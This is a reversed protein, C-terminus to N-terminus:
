FVSYMFLVWYKEKEFLGILKLGVMQEAVQRRIGGVALTLDESSEASSWDELWTVAVREGDWVALAWGAPQSQDNRL